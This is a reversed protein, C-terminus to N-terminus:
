TGGPVMHFIKVWKTKPPMEQGEFFAVTSSPAALYLAQSAFTRNVDNLLATGIGECRRDERVCLESLWAANSNNSIVRAFAVPEDGDLVLFATVLYGLFKELGGSADLAASASQFGAGTLLEQVKTKHGPAIDNSVSLGMEALADAQWTGQEAGKRACPTLDTRHTLGAKACLSQAPEQVAHIKISLHGFKETVCRLLEKGIGTRQHDSHVAIDAIWAHLIDDTFVSVFGVVEDDALAFIGHSGDPLNKSVWLPADTNQSPADDFAGAWIRDWAAYDFVTKDETFSIPTAFTM